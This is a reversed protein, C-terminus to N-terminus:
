FIYYCFSGLGCILLRTTSTNAIFFNIIKRKAKTRADWLQQSNVSEKIKTELLLAIKEDSIPFTKLLESAEVEDMELFEALEKTTCCQATILWLILDPKYLIFAYRQRITLNQAAKWVLCLISRTESESNGEVQKKGFSYQYTEIELKYEIQSFLIDKRYKESFFESIERQVAVNIFRQWEEYELDRENRLKWSWIKYFVKQSIDEVSDRYISGLKFLILKQINALAQIIFKEQRPSIPIENNEM